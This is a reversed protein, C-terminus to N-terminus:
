EKTSVFKKISPDTNPAKPMMRCRYGIIRIDKSEMKGNKWTDNTQIDTNDYSYKAESDFFPGFKFGGGAELHVKLEKYNSSNKNLTFKMDKVMILETIVSPMLGKGNGDSIIDKNLQMSSGQGLRWYKSEIFNQSMWPRAVSVKGLRFSFTMDDSTFNKNLQDVNVKSNARGSSFVVNFGASVSANHASKNYSSTKESTSSDFLVWGDSLQLTGAPVPVSVSYDNNTLGDTRRNNRFEKELRKKITLISKSEVEELYNNIKEVAEKYGLSVWAKLAMDEKRKMSAGGRNIKTVADADGNEAAEYVANNEEVVTLYKDAYQLYKQYMPSIFTQTIEKPNSESEIEDKDFEPNKLVKEKFLKNRLKGLKEEIKEDIESEAVECSIMLDEYTGSVSKNGPNFIAPVRAKGSPLLAPIGNHIEDTILAFQYMKAYNGNKTSLVIDNYEQMNYVPKGNSDLVQKGDKDLVPNPKPPTGYVGKVAFDFSDKMIMKGIPDFAIFNDTGLSEPNDNTIVDYVKGILQGMFDKTQDQNNPM